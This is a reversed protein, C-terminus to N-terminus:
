QAASTIGRLDVSASRKRRVATGPASRRIERQRWDDAADNYRGVIEDAAELAAAWEIGFSDRIVSPPAILRVPAQNEDEWTVGLKGGRWVPAARGCRSIIEIAQKPVSLRRDLM